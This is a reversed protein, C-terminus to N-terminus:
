YNNRIAVAEEVWNALNSKIHDYVYTSISYPPDYAKVISSLAKGGVTLTAFPNAGKTAQNGDKNKLNHVYVGVVGKKDNWSKQIEYNIWKRGSTGAGILVLTCSRSYLQGDIWAKIAADGGDTISEWDNDSVPANGEIVGINRVQSARWNDPKYHFSFFTKRAM